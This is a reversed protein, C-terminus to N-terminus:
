ADIVRSQDQRRLLKMGERASRADVSDILDFAVAPPPAYRDDRKFLWAEDPVVRLLVNGAGEADHLAHSRIVAPLDASRVYAEVENGPVLALEYAPAASIGSLVVRPDKSLHALEGPHASFWRPAGRRVLRAQLESLGPGRLARNLRWRVKPSLGDVIRGSALFLLQWANRPSLPRGAPHPDKARRMVARRDVLWRGAVKEGPLEEALVLARVRSPHVNLLDAAESSSIMDM